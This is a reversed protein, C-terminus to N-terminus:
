SRTSHSQVCSKLIYTIINRRVPFFKSRTSFFTEGWFCHFIHNKMLKFFKGKVFNRLLIWNKSSVKKWSARFKKRNTLVDYCSYKFPTNQGLTCSQLCIIREFRSAFFIGFFMTPFPPFYGNQNPKLGGGKTVLTM